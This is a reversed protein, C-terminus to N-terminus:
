AAAAADSAAAAAKKKALERIAPMAGAPNGTKAIKFICKYTGIAAGDAADAGELSAKAALAAGALQEDDLAGLNARLVHSFATTDDVCRHMVASKFKDGAAEAAASAGSWQTWDGEEGAAGRRVAM